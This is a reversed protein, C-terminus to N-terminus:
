PSLFQELLILAAKKSPFVERSDQISVADYGVCSPCGSTCPCSFAVKGAFSFVQHSLEFVKQALGIGGPYTDLVAICPRERVRPELLVQVDRKDSLTTVPITEELLNKLGLLGSLPSHKQQRCINWTQESPLFLVATTELDPLDRHVSIIGRNYGTHFQIRKLKEVSSHRTVTGYELSGTGAMKKELTDQWDLFGSIVPITFYDCEIEELLARKLKEVVGQVRYTRGGSLYISDEFIQHSLQHSDLQGILTQPSDALVLDYSDEGLTRLSIRHAPSGSKPFYWKGKIEKLLGEQKLIELVPFFNAGFCSEDEASLPFEHAACKLHASVLYPNDPDLFAAEVPSEFIFEPHHAIYQDVPNQGPVFVVLSERGRRGARGAQQRFSAMSRPFSFILAADLHGIDIGVELASTSIIASTKGGALDAEMARRQAATYGARYIAIRGKLEPALRAFAERLYRGLLECQLRTQTFAIVTHGALVLDRLVQRAQEYMSGAKVKGQELVEPKWTLFRKPSLPAGDHNIGIFDEKVLRAALEGPNHITASCMIWAPKVTLRLCLRKLRALVLAIHSGFVGRYVHAEDLIVYKLHFFFDGWRGHVPLISTHLMDPNTLIINSRSRILKRKGAPTDGDYVVPRVSAMLEPSSGTIEELKRLQDQALAKTPYLAMVRLRPNKLLDNLVPLWYCLSKGSSTATSIVTNNGERIKRIADAQHSYLKAIGLVKMAEVLPAELFEPFPAFEGQQGPRSVDSKIQGAYYSLSKIKELTEALNLSGM